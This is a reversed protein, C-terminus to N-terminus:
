PNKFYSISNTKGNFEFSKSGSPRICTMINIQIDYNFEDCKFSTSLNLDKSILELQTNEASFLSNIKSVFGTQGKFIFCGTEGCQSFKYGTMKGPFLQAASTLSLFFLCVFTLGKKLYIPFM